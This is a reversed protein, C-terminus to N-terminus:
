VIDVEEFKYLNIESYLSDEKAINCIGKRKKDCFLNGIFDYGGQWGAVLWLTSKDRIEIRVPNIKDYSKKENEISNLVIRKGNPDIVCLRGSYYINENEQM